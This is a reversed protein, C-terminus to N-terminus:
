DAALSEPEFTTFSKSKPFDSVSASARALRRAPTDPLDGTDEPAFYDMALAFVFLCTMGVWWVTIIDM